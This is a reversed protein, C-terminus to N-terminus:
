CVETLDILSVPIDEDARRNGSRDICLTFFDRDPIVLCQSNLSHRLLVAFLEDQELPELKMTSIDLIFIPHHGYIEEHIAAFASLVTDLRPVPPMDADPLPTSKQIAELTLVTGIVSLRIAPELHDTQLRTNIKDLRHALSTQEMHGKGLREALFALPASDPEALLTADTNHAIRQIETETVPLFLPLRDNILARAQDFHRARDVAHLCLDLQAHKKEPLYHRLAELQKKLNTAVEGKIRDAGRLISMSNQLTEIAAAADPDKCSILNSVIPEIESWRTSSSLEIFNIWRSRDRRRGVEIRDTKYFAPDIEALEKVLLSSASFIAIAATKKSPIIKRTYSQRSDYLPLDSFLDTEEFNYPTNITQLIRTLAQAQESHITKFINLGGGVKLWPGPIMPHGVIRLSLLLM